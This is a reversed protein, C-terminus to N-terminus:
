KVIANYGEILFTFDQIKYQNPVLFELDISESEGGNHNAGYTNVRIDDNLLLASTIDGNTSHTASLVLVSSSKYRNDTSSSSSPFSFSKDCNISSSFM